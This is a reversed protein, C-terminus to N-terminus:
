LSCLEPSINSDFKQIFHFRGIRKRKVLPLQASTFLHRMMLLDLTQTWGGGSALPLSFAINKNNNERKRQGAVTDPSLGTVKQQHPTQKGSRLQWQELSFSDPASM